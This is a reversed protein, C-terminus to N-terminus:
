ANELIEIRALLDNIKNILTNSTNQTYNSTDQIIDQGNINYTGNLLNMNGNVTLKDSNTAPATNIGVSNYETNIQIQNAYSPPEYATGKNWIEVATWSSSPAPYNNNYMNESRNLFLLGSNLEGVKNKWYVTYYVTETTQPEDQYSGSVNTISHSYISSEAGLNHSIWCGTGNINSSGNGTKNGNADSIETWSGNGIKRYLKLGWWRSDSSYEMGIHSTMSVLIKSATDTPKISIVFGNTINNNIPEWDTGSRIEM